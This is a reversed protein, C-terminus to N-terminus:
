GRRRAVEKGCGARFAMIVYRKLVLAGSGALIALVVIVIIWPGRKM